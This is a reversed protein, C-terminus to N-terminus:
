QHEISAIGAFPVIEARGQHAPKMLPEIDAEIAAGRDVPCQPFAVANEAIASRDAIDNDLGARKSGVHAEGLPWSSKIGRGRAASSKSVIRARRSSNRRSFSGPSGVWVVSM